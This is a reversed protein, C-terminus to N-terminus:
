RVSHCICSDKIKIHSLTRTSFKITYIHIRASSGKPLEWVITVNAHQLFEVRLDEKISPAQIIPPQPLEIPHCLVTASYSCSCVTYIISDPHNLLRSGLHRNNPLLKISWIQQCSCIVSISWQLYLPSTLYFLNSDESSLFPFESFLSEWYLVYLTSQSPLHISTTKAGVMSFYATVNEVRDEIKLLYGVTSRSENANTQENIAVM